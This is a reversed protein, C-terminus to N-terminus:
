VELGAPMHDIETYEPDDICQDRLARYETKTVEIFDESCFWHTSQLAYQKNVSDIILVNRNGSTNRKTAFSMKM